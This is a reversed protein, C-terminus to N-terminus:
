KSEHIPEEEQMNELLLKANNAMVSLISTLRQFDEPQIGQMVAEHFRTLENRSEAFTTRGKESLRLLNERRNQPNSIRLVFGKEVLSKVSKSISGKDIAYHNAIADQSIDEHSFLFMLLYHEAATVNKEVLSRNLFVHSYRVITSMDNLFM